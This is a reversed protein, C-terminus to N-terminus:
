IHILSLNHHIQRELIPEYDAQMKRGAVQVMVALPLRSGPQIDKVDPGFVEVKGDEQVVGIQPGEARFLLTNTPLTPVAEMKTNPFRMQAYGGALIEEKSNDMELEVLLTRSDAALVGATRIVTATFSRGPLEPVTM